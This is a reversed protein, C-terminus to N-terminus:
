LKQLRDDIQQLIPGPVFKLARVLPYTSVWVTDSSIAEAREPVLETVATMLCSYARPDDIIDGLTSRLSFPGGAPRKPAAFQWSHEGSGVTVAACGPLEVLATVNAPVTARVTVTDQADRTWHVEALGYPTLQRSRAHDLGDLPRPAIRLQRYGPAAPALGAVTRHMWDVISGFTYHNFSTMEGPNITGDPRLSDWREWITTAGMTVPYLWSPCQTQLLLREAAAMQGTASLADGIIATGVFGTSIRYGSRRILEALRDGMRQRQPPDTVLDFVLALAYGTPADSMMRGAPTVFTDCFARRTREHLAAYHHSQEDDGVMACARAVLQLSKALYATAVIDHDVKTRGPDEPPADPDLWDGLQPTGQWVGSDGAVALVSEVWAIMSPLQDGVVGADGYRDYLVSPVVTAADGYEAFRLADALHPLCEPVMMPVNGDLRRQEAALDRLWSSLFADADVLTTMSPAFLQLDGTFGMREDRQPCDMPISLTDARLTWLVNEHMRDLMPHSSDFWARRPLDSHVAVAEIDAPDLEGPWGDIQVYRFGYSSFRSELLNEGDVLDFTAKQEAFRLPRLALEGGDLVEAHRVVIRDGAAGTVRMRVRGGLNQGFDVITAGSPATLVAAVPVRAGRRIPPSIRAQPVPVNEYGPLANAGIRAPAWSSADYGPASWGTHHRRLDQHEGAYLGSSVVPGEASTWWSAGTAAVTVVEDDTYEVRLQALFSPQDGFVRKAQGYYGYKETYWCGALTAALVNQGTGVLDTIDVTEHVLRDRYSTWGPSLVDDSVSQGNVEPEAVGLATWFLTVRRIPRDLVFSTRLLVPQADVTPAALGIPQAVWEGPALAGCEVILPESWETQAGDVSRVRVQVGHRRGLTLPAFPWPVLVSDAGGVTIEADDCRLDVSEQRWDEAADAVTWTLRPTAVAVVGTDTRLEATLRAITPVTM